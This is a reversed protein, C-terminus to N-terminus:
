GAELVRSVGGTHMCVSLGSGKESETKTTATQLTYQTLLNFRIMLIQIIPPTERDGIDDSSSAHTQNPWRVRRHNPKTHHVNFELHTEM